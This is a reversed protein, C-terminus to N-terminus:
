KFSEVSCLLSPFSGIAFLLKVKSRVFIKPSSATDINKIQESTINWLHPLITEIIDKFYSNLFHFTIVTKKLYLICM